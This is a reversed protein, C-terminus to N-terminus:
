RYLHTRMFRQKLIDVLGILDVPVKRRTYLSACCVSTSCLDRQLSGMSFQVLKGM